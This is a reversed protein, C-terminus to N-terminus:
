ASYFRHQDVCYQLSAGDVGNSDLKLVKLNVLSSANALVKFGAGDMDSSGLNLQKLQALGSSNALSTVGESGVRNGELDLEELNPFALSEALAKAGSATISNYGLLLQKVSSYGTSRAFAVIGADGIECSRLNLEMLKPFASSKALAEAGDSGFSNSAVNLRKLNKLHPATALAEVVNQKMRTSSLDLAGIQELHPLILIAPFDYENDVEKWNGKRWVTTHFELERLGPAVAFMRDSHKPLVKPQYISCKEVVGGEMWLYHAPASGIRPELGLKKLGLLWAHSHEEFLATWRPDLASRRADNEALGELEMDIEIFEGLPNKHKKLLLALESRLETNEHDLALRRFLDREDKTFQPVPTFMGSKDYRRAVLWLVALGVASVALLQLGHLPQYILWRLGAVLVAVCAAILTGYILLGINVWLGMMNFGSDMAMPRILLYFAPGWLALLLVRIAWIVVTNNGHASEFLSKPAHEGSETIDVESGSSTQFPAFTQGTQKAVVSIVHPATARYTLLVDGVEPEQYSSGSNRSVYLLGKGVVAGQGKLSEPLQQLMEETVPYEKSEGLRKVQEPTLNFAGVHATQALLELDQFPMEAPNEHGKPEEFNDKPKDKSWERSYVYSTVTKDDKKTETKKETWQFLEVTRNLKLATASIGFDPDVLKEDTTAEGTLHVLKGENAPDVKASSVEVLNGAGEELSSAKSIAYNEGWIQLGLATIAILTGIIAGLIAGGPHTAVMHLISEDDKEESM